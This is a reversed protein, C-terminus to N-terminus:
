YKAATEYVDRIVADPTGAELDSLLIYGRGIKRCLEDIEKRVQARPLQRLREPHYFVSPRLRPFLRHVRDLDSAAGMDLYQIRGAMEALADLYPDVTWNCTHIGFLPFSRSLRADCELLLERYMDCSIMNILCDCVVLSAPTEPAQWARVRHVVGDLTTAIVDALHGFLERQEVMDFFMQEGRLKHAINIVGEYGLEGTVRRFGEKRPDCITRFVPHTDFDPAELRRVAGDDLHMCEAYPHGSADDFHIRSGFLSPIFGDGYMRECAYSDEYDDGFVFSGLDGFRQKLAASMRVLTGRHVRPDTHFPEGFAIGYEAQWWAPMFGTVVTIARPEERGPRLRWNLGNMHYPQIRYETDTSM